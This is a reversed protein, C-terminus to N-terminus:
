LYVEYVFEDTSRFLPTKDLRIIQYAGDVTLPDEEGESDLDDLNGLFLFGEEDVEQTLLLRARSVIEKGDKDTVVKVIGDWRCAIEVPDAYTHKGYGDEVPSGWYVATQACVKEIFKIIGM